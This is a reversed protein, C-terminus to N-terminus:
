RGRKPFFYNAVIVALGVVVGLSTGLFTNMTSPDLKWYEAGQMILVFATFAMWAPVLRYLIFNGIEKRADIDDKLSKVELYKSIYDLDYETKGEGGIGEFADEEKKFLQSLDEPVQEVKLKSFDTKRKRFRM